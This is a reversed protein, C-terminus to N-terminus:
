IHILSLHLAALVRAADADDRDGFVIRERIIIQADVTGIMSGVLLGLLSVALLNFGGDIKLWANQLLGNLTASSERLSLRSYISDYSPEGSNLPWVTGGRSTQRSRSCDFKRSIQIM